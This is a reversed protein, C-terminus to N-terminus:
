NAVPVKEKIAKRVRGLFGRLHAGSGSGDPVDHEGVGNDGSSSTTGPKDEAELHSSREQWPTDAAFVEDEDSSSAEPETGTQGNHREASSRFIPERPEQYAGGSTLAEIRVLAERQLVDARQREATLQQLTGSLQDRLFAVESRLEELLADQLTTDPEKQGPAAGRAMVPAHPTALVDDPVMVFWTGDRKTAQLSGRRIRARVADATIGLAAAAAAVPVGTGEASKPTADHAAKTVVEPPTVITSSSGGLRRSGGLRNRETGPRNRHEM